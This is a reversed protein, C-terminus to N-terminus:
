RGSDNRKYRGHRGTVKDPTSEDERVNTRANAGMTSVVHEGGPLYRPDTIVLYKTYVNVVTANIEVTSYM